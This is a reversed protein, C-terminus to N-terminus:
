KDSPVQQDAYSPRIGSLIALGSGFAALAIALWISRAVPKGYRDCIAAFNKLQYPRHWPGVAIAMSALAILIALIGVLTEDDTM